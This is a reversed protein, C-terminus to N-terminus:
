IIPVGTIHFYHSNRNGESASEMGCRGYMALSIQWRFWELALEQLNEMNRSGTPLRLHPAVNM